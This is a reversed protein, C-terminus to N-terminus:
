NGILETLDKNWTGIRVGARNFKKWMGGNYGDRDPIIFSNDNRFIIKNELGCPCQLEFGCVCFEGSINEDKKKGFFYQFLRIFQQKITM